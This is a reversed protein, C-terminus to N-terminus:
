DHATAIEAYKEKWCLCRRHSEIYEAAQDDSLSRVWALREAPDLNRLNHLQCGEPNGKDFPCSFILGFLSIRETIRKRNQATM